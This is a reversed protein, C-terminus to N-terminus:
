LGAASLAALVIFWVSYSVCACWFCLVCMRGGVLGGSDVEQEEDASPTITVFLFCVCLLSLQCLISPRALMERQDVVVAWRGVWVGM